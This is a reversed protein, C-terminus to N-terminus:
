QKALQAESESVAIQFPAEDLKYLVDGKHVLQIDHVLVDEVRGGVNSSINVQGARVYADDTSVYRGGFLYFYGVVGLILLPGAIMLPLRIREGLTRPPAADVVGSADNQNRREDQFNQPKVVANM